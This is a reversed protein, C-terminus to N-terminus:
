GTINEAYDNSSIFDEQKIYAQLIKEKALHRLCSVSEGYAKSRKDVVFTFNIRADPHKGSNLICQAIVVLPRQFTDNNQRQQNFQNRQM